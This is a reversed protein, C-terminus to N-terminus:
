VVRNLRFSDSHNFFIHEHIKEDGLIGIPIEPPFDFWDVFDFIKQVTLHSWQFVHLKHVTYLLCSFCISSYYSVM